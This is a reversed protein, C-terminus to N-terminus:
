RSVSGEGGEPEEGQGGVGLCGGVDWLHDLSPRQGLTSSVPEGHPEGIGQPHERAILAELTEAKLRVIPKGDTSSRQVVRLEARPYVSVEVPFPRDLVHIHHYDEFANGRRITVTEGQCRWGLGDMHAELAELDDTFVHLDIDSGRRARGTSVSGILRPSFPWLARMLDLADLRMLHLRELREPGETMEVLAQIAQQIEGNSPLDHPRYRMRGANKRGFVRRAAMHKADLYQAVGEEVMLRAAEQALERRLRDSQPSKM